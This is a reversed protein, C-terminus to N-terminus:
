FHSVGILPRRGRENDATQILVHPERISSHSAPPSRTAVPAARHAPLGTDFALDRPENQIGSDSFLARIPRKVGGIFQEEFSSDM